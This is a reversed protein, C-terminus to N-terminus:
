ARRTVGSTTVWGFSRVGRQDAAPTVVGFESIYDGAPAPSTKKMAGGVRSSLELVDSSPHGALSVTMMSNLGNARLAM